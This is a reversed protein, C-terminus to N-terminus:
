IEPLNSMAVSSAALVAVEAPTAPGAIRVQVARRGLPHTTAGITAQPLVRETLRRLQPGVFWGAVVLGIAMQPGPWRGFACLAVAIWFWQGRLRLFEPIAFVFGHIWLSPSAVVSALGLRALGKRGRRLLATLVVAAALPVLIMEPLWRGLGIGYFTPEIEQSQQYASLARLWDAWMGFGTLPLTVVVVVAVLGVGAALRRWAGQRLLWLWIIANQPKFLTGLGLLEGFRPALALLLLVPIAVNGVFLGEEIPPWLLAILAWHWSLGFVRLSYVVAAVSLGFWMSGVLWIPLASLVAFLPVAPPAYLFPLYGGYPYHNMALTTYVPHGALFQAGAHLYLNLDRLPDSTSFQCDRLISGALVELAMLKTPTVQRRAILVAAVGLAVLVAWVVGGFGYPRTGAFQSVAYAAVAAPGVAARVIPRWSGARGEGAWGGPRSHSGRFGSSEAL